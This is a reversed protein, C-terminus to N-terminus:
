QVIVRLLGSSEVPTLYKKINEQIPKLEDPYYDLFMGQNFFQYAMNEEKSEKASFVKAAKKLFM